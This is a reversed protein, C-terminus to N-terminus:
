FRRPFSSNTGKVADVIVMVNRGIRSRWIMSEVSGRM